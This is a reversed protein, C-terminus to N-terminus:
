QQISPYRELYGRDQAIKVASIKSNVGLKQYINKLHTKATEESICLHEATEKRSLGEASLSLIDIERQTLSAPHYSLGQITQMYKRCLDLIRNTFDDGPNDKTIQELMSMIHPACEVFPMVLWDCRAEKLAAELVDAGSPIGYLNCRAAAEFIKNYLFGLQNSYISFIKKFERSLVELRAYKKSAMVAKGYVLYYYAMAQHYFTASKMDGIQLWSPIREPQCICSYVYGSCLDVATNYFPRNIREAELKLKELIEIAESLRGQVIRLRMLCLKACIIIYIQSMTEAKAIAHHINKEVRDFDGTELAYEARALFDSGTGWGNSFETFEVYESLVDALERFGGVDRFYIFLYQLSGFTFTYDRLLLYSSQGNLLHIIEKDSAKMESWHNFQIFKRQILTEGLIRNRCTEDIGNQEKYIHYLEDLREAWGLVPNQKGQIFSHFIFLLYAFPYQLLISRPTSNFMEDAGEFRILVNRINAPNNLHSLIRTVQGARNWYGYATQFEQNKLHWDGLRSYLGCIEERSFNQKLRLYDLLISHIKYRKSREDYYVFANEKKLRKLLVPANENNTVFEAQDTSFEEIVSLRLLFDQIDSTYPAFLTKEVMEEMTTSIGVPIGNALGLLIIYIFSIWGDTYKCIKDLDRDTIGRQMMRCYDRIESETFKLHQRSLICCLGKALLEVFDIDTTDRTILLIHLGDLEERALLLVLKKVSAGRALQYDDLVMLLNRESLADSLIQLVKETQPADAPLGLSKLAIGAQSNMQLVRDTFQEWFVEESNNLDPFTFWFPKLKEAEIFQKVATTKGYGMPSELITLPYNYVASLVENIRTRELFRTNRM